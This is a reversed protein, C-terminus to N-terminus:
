KRTAIWLMVGILILFMFVAAVIGIIAGTSLGTSANNPIPTPIFIPSHTQPQTTTQPQSQTAPQQVIIQPTPSQLVQVDKSPCNGFWTCNIDTFSSGAQQASGLIKTGSEAYNGVKSFIDMFSSKGTEAAATATDVSSETEKQADDAKGFISSIDFAM